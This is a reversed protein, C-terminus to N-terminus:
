IVTESNVLYPLYLESYGHDEIHIDLMWQILARQLKAGAGKLLYFRSQSIKVARQSDIIGLNEGLEWHPKPDFTFKRPRGVVRVEVNGEEDVGIPTTSSPINPINLLINDLKSALEKEKNELEKIRSGVERMEEILYKPKEQLKSLDRSVENRRARLNDAESIFTRRQGDLATAEDIPFDKGRKLGADKLVSVDNRILEIDIM